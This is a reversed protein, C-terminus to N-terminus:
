LFLNESLCNFMLENIEKSLTLDFKLTFPRNCVDIIFTMTEIVISGM